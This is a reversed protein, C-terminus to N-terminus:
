EKEVHLQYIQLLENVRQLGIAEPDFKVGVWQMWEAHEPHRPDRIAALFEAYGRVGGVDEPPCARKGDMCCPYQMDKQPSLIQEV